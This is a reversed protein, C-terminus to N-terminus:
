IKEYKNNCKTQSATAWHAGARETRKEIEKGYDRFNVSQAGLSIAKVRKSACIDLHEGLTGAHQIWKPNVGIQKVMALLEETSDAWLHSMSLRGFNRGTVEGFNDVYVM